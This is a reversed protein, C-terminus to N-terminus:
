DAPKRYLSSWTNKGLIGDSKLNHVTQYAAVANETRTGYVGDDKLTPVLPQLKQQASKVTAGNHNKKMSIGPWIEGEGHLNAYTQYLSDWTQQGVAGDQRIGALTQFTKVATATGSGYKGDVTLNQIVPWHARVGNLWRQILAVDPGTAGSRYVSGAYPPLANSAM